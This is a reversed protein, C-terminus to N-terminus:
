FLLTVTGNQRHKEGRFDLYNLVWNYTGAPAFSGNKMRGDWGTEPSVSKFIIEGWRNFILLEYGDKQIGESYIRFERDKEISANPSFANPPFIRDFIVTIRSFASDTCGFDNTALLKVDYFGMEAFRHQPNEESLIPSADDFDWLFATANKSNNEFNVTPESVLVTNPVAEFGAEPVPFIRIGEKILLTDACGTIESNAYVAIDLNKNAETYENEVTEGESTKGNGLDWYYRVDDIDDRTEAQFKVPLPPCGNNIDLAIEFLPKRKITKLFTDTKCGYESVVRVGLEIKPSSLLNVKLPGSTIGPNVLIDNKAFNQLGWIISDNGTASGQYYIEIEDAYCIEEDFSFDISPIPHVLIKENILGVNECGESSVIRLEVEFSKDITTDNKFIHEPEKLLSFSGDRFNWYFSDVPEPSSVKFQVPLPSCGEPNEAWFDLVPTVSVPVTTSDICGQENIKLGVRRNLLGYGLPVEINQLNIGSQYVTDNSLWYFTADEFIDGDHELKLNYGKCENDDMVFTADPQNHFEINLTDLFTCEYQDKLLMEFQYKGFNGVTIFPSLSNEDEISVDTNLATLYTEASGDIFSLALKQQKSGCVLTDVEDFNLQPILSWQVHASDKKTCGFENTLKVTYWGEDSVNKIRNTTLDNWLYSTHKGPDLDISAGECIINNFDWNHVPLPDVNVKFFATDTCYDLTGIVKYSTSESPSVEPNSINTSSINENPSWSYTYIDSAELNLRTSEGQCINVERQSSFAIKSVNITASASLKVEPDGPMGGFEVIFGQPFYYGNPNNKDGENSLDNWSKQITNPNSNIHAYDEDDGWSKQVNNPEGTNWNSYQANVPSGTYNGKWFVTGKEPGTMWKWTGEQESDSAGIWGVGDIKTWIFDNEVSSTISALYGKLGYYNMNAASDRAETWTIGVKKIYRYFHQTQPLYDADLLSISFERMGTTPKEAINKYYVKSVAQTYAISTGIGRILLQGYNEDWFYNFSGVQDYVLKDEGRKYNAISIKMGEGPENINVNEIFILEAILVSDTCYNLVSDNLNEIRPVTPLQAHTTFALGAYLLFYFIIKGM